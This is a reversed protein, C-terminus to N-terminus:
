KDNNVFTYMCFRKLEHFLRVYDVNSVESSPAFPVEESRLATLYEELQNLDLAQDLNFKEAVVDKLAMYMYNIEESIANLHNFVHLLLPQVSYLFKWTHHNVLLNVSEGLGSQTRIYLSKHNYHVGLEGIERQGFQISKIHSPERVPSNFHENICTFTGLFRETAGPNLKVGVFGPKRIVLTPKFNFEPDAALVVHKTGGKNIPWIHRLVCETRDHCEYAKAQSKEPIPSDKKGNGSSPYPKFRSNFMKKSAM